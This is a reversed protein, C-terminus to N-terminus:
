KYYDAVMELLNLAGPWQSTIVPNACYSRITSTTTEGISFLQTKTSLTNVSFFSHVASPSFFMIGEYPKSIEEAIPITQYVVIEQVQINGAKLLDPLENMRRNGCFFVIENIESHLRIKEALAKGNKGTAVITSAPFAQELKDKTIGGICFIRWKPQVPLHAKVADVANASTFAAVIPQECISRIDAATEASIWPAIRIFPRVDVKFHRFAERELLEKKLERTSLISITNGEM